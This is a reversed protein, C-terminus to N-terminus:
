YIIKTFKIKESAYSPFGNSDVGVYYESGSPIVCEFLHFGGEILSELHETMYKGHPLTKYTHIYGEGIDYSTNLSNTEEIKKRGHAVFMWMGKVVNEHILSEEYPTMYPCGEAKSEKVVKYCVMDEEAYLPEKTKTRLCM